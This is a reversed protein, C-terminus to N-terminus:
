HNYKLQHLIIPFNSHTTLGINPYLITLTLSKAERPKPFQNYGRNPLPFSQSLTFYAGLSDQLCLCGELNSPPTLADLPDADTMAGGPM